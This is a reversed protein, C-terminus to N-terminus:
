PMCKADPKFIDSEDYSIFIEKEGEIKKRVCMLSKKEVIGVLDV